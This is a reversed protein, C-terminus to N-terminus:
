RRHVGHAGGGFKELEAELEREYDRRLLITVTEHLHVNAPQMGSEMDVLLDRLERIVYAYFASDM